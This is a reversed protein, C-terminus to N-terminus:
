RQGVAPPQSDPSLAHLLTDLRSEISEDVQGLETEVVCGYDTLSPDLRVEVHRGDLRMREELIQRTPEFANGVRVLVRDHQGLAEIGERVLDRVLMPDLSLERGIVRRAILAALEAVQGATEVLLRERERALLTVAQEFASVLLPDPGAPQPPAPEPQPQRQSEPPAPERSGLQVSPPPRESLRGIAEAPLSKRARGAYEPDLEYRVADVFESPLKPPRLSASEARAAREPQPQSPRDGQGQSQGRGPLWSPVRRQTQGVEAFKARQAGGSVSHEFWKM